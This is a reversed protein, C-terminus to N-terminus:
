ERRELKMISPIFFALTGTLVIAIGCIAFVNAVGIADAIFGTAMLGLISPLLSISDFLSFVRGLFSAEIKTQLLATFPGSNFPIALGQVVSFIAYAIFASPPLIGSIFISIGIIVYSVNM